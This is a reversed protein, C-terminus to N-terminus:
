WVHVCVVPAGLGHYMGFAAKMLFVRAGVNLIGVNTPLDNGDHVIVEKSIVMLMLGNM